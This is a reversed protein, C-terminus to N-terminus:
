DMINISYMGIFYEYLENEEEIEKKHEKIHECLYKKCETISESEFLIGDKTNVYYYARENKIETLKKM